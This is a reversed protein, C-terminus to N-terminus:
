SPDGQPPGENSIMIALPKLVAVNEFVSKMTAMIPISLIMGPLGWLWGWVMFSLFIVLPSLRLRNGLLRPELISGVAFQIAVLCAGILAIKAASFVPNPQVITMLLPFLTAICSGINPIYNLLFTLLGWIFFFKVGFLWLLVTVFLGTMLSIITKGVIYREVQKQINDIVDLIRGGREEPWAKKVRYLIVDREVLLFVMYLLILLMTGLLSFLTGITASAYQILEEKEPLLSDWDVTMVDKLQDSLRGEVSDVIELFRERYSAYEDQFVPVQSYFVKGLLFIVGGTLIIILIIAPGTRVKIKKMLAVFPGALCALFFAVVFPLFISKMQIVAFGAAVLAVVTLPLSSKTSKSEM